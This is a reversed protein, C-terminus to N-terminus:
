RYVPVIIMLFVVIGIDLLGIRVDVFSTFLVSSGSVNVSVDRVVVSWVVTREVLVVVLVVVVSIVLITGVIGHNACLVITCLSDLVLVIVPVAVTTKDVVTRYVLGACVVPVGVMVVNPLVNSLVRTSILVVVSVIITLMELSVLIIIRDVCSVIITVIHTTVVVSVVVSVVGIM